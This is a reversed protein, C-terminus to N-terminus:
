QRTGGPAHAVYVLTEHRTHYGTLAGLAAGLGTWYATLLLAFGSVRKESAMVLAGAAVGVLAGNRSHAATKREGREFVRVVDVRRFTSPTGRVAIRIQQDDVSVLQGVTSTGSRVM